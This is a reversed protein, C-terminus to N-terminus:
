DKLTSFSSFSICKPRLVKVDEHTVRGIRINWLINRYVDDNQQRMNITLEDYEFLSWIDFSAITKIYKKTKADSLKQFVLGENVPPLQLLDGFVLIHKKGFFSNECNETNFTETLRLHLYMLNVNSVMSGEDIIILSVNNLQERTRKLSSDSLEYSEATKGHEVPLQFLRHM